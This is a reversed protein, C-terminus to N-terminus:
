TPVLVGEALCRCDDGAGTGEAILDDLGEGEHADPVEGDDVEIGDRVRVQRAGDQEALAVYAKGLRLNGGLTHAFEIGLDGDAGDHAIDGGIDSQAVKGTRRHDEATDIRDTGPPGDVSPAQFGADPPDVTAGVLPMALNGPVVGGPARAVFARHGVLHKGAHM